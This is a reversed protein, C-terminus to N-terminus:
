RCDKADAENEQSQEGSSSPPMRRRLRGETNEDNKTQRHQVRVGVRQESPGRLGRQVQGDQRWKEPHWTQPNVEGRQPPDQQNEPDEMRDASEKADQLNVKRPATLRVERQHDGPLALAIY